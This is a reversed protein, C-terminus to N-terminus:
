RVLTPLPVPSSIGAGGGALTFVRVDAGGVSIGLAALLGDILPALAVLVPQLLKLVAALLDDLNLVLGLLNVELHLNESLNELAYAISELPPSGVRQVAPVPPVADPEFPGYFNLTTPAPPQIETWASAKVTVLGLLNLVTAPNDAVSDPDSCDVGPAAVCLFAIGPQVGLTASGHPNRANPCQLNTLWADSRGVEAAVQLNLIGGSLGNLLSLSLENRLQATHVQTRWEGVDDQGPPGIAIQPPEVIELSLELTALSPLDLGAVTVLAHEGNAVQAGLTVLDFLNLRADLASEPDLNTVQLLDGIRLDLVSSSVAALEQLVSVCLVCEDSVAEAVLLYFDSLSLDADLLEDVSGLGAYAHVLQLLQVNADVLGQYSVADLNLHSGLLGGLVSNLLASKSTDISALYSGVSIGGFGPNHAVGTASLELPGNDSLFGGIFLSRPTNRQTVTVRVSSAIAVSTPVFERVGQANTQIIGPETTVIKDDDAIFGNNAASALAAVQLTSANNLSAGCLLRSTDLATVDAVKQLDRRIWALRGYDAALALVGLMVIIVSAALISVAGRQNILPSSPNRRM